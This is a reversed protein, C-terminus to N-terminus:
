GLQITNSSHSIPIWGYEWGSLPRRTSTIEKGNLAIVNQPFASRRRPFLVADTKPADFAMANQQTWQLSADAAQQLGATIEEPSRGQCWWTIDDVFSLTRVAGATVREVYGFETSFQRTATGGGWTTVPSAITVTTRIYARVNAAHRATAPTGPTGSMIV